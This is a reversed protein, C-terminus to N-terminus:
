QIVEILCWDYWYACICLVCVSIYIYSIYIYIRPWRAGWFGWVYTGLPSWKIIPVPVTYATTEFCRLTCHKRTHSGLLVDMCRSLLAVYTTVTFASKRGWIYMAGWYKCFLSDGFVISVFYKQCSEIHIRIFSMLLVGLFVLFGRFFCQFCFFLVGSTKPIM